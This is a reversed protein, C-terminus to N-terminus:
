TIKFPDPIKLKLLLGVIPRDLYTFVSKKKLVELEEVKYNDFTELLDSAAVSEDDV